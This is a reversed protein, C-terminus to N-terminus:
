VETGADAALAGRGADTIAYKDANWGDAPIADIIFGAKYLAALAGSLEFQRERWQRNERRRGDHVKPQPAITCFATFSDLPAPADALIQLIALEDPKLPITAPAITM